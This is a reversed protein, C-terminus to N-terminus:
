SFHQWGPQPTELHLLRIGSGAVVQGIEFGKLASGTALFAHDEGGSLILDFVSVKLQAAVQSLEAFDPHTKILEGDILFQVGSAEAMQTGQIMLSDSIDSLSNASIAFKKAREYNITPVRHESIAFDILGGSAEQQLALFGAASWGPLKSIYIADGVQAGSRLIPKNCEGIATISIVIKESRALDGGIVQAGASYAEHAIGRAVDLMWELEENGTASMAVTLFKPAGGMAFIDALNAAAVKRGIERASSWNVKFHVNEVAMDTTVVVQAEPRAVVAADDGIGVLVESNAEAFIESINLILERESWRRNSSAM